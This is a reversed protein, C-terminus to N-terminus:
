ISFLITKRITLVDINRKIPIIETIKSTRIKSAYLEYQFLTSEPKPTRNKENKINIKPITLTSVDKFVFRETKNLICSKKYAKKIVLGKKNGICESKSKSL